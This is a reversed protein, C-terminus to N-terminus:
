DSLGGNKINVNIEELTSGRGFAETEINRSMEVSRQEQNM